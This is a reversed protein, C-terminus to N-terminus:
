RILWSPKEMLRAPRADVVVTMGALRGAQQCALPITNTLGVNSM